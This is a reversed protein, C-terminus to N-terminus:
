EATNVHANNSQSVPYTHAYSQYDANNAMAVAPIMMTAILSLAAITKKM